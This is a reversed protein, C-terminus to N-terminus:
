KCIWSLYACKMKEQGMCQPVKNEVAQTLNETIGLSLAIRIFNITLEDNQLVTCDADNVRKLIM